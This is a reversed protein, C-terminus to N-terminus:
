LIPHEYSSKKTYFHVLSNATLTKFMHHPLLTPVHNPVHVEQCKNQCMPAMKNKSIEKSKRSFFYKLFIM